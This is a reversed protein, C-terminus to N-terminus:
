EKLIRCKGRSLSMLCRMELLNEIQSFVSYINAASLLVALKGSLPLRGINKKLENFDNFYRRGLM